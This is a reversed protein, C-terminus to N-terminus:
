PAGLESANRNEREADRARGAREYALALWRRHSAHNPELFVCQKFAQVADPVRELALLLIGRWLRAEADTPIAVRELHALAEGYRGTDALSRVEDLTATTRDEAAGQGTHPPLAPPKSLARPAHLGSSLAPPRPRRVTGKRPRSPSRRGPRVTSIKVTAKRPPAHPAEEPPPKPQRRYYRVGGQIVHEWVDPQHIGPDSPGILLLGDRALLLGLSRVVGQAVAPDWYIGVNRFFIADFPSHRYPLDDVLNVREFTVLSRLGPSVEWFEGQNRFYADYGQLGTRVSWDRYSGQRAKQLRRENIDWGVVRDQATRSPTVDALVAAASWAEEGSSCGASLVRVSRGERHRQEALKRLLVFHGFHRFLHTEPVTMVDIIADWAQTDRALLRELAAEVGRRGGVHSMESALLPMRYDPVEIGYWQALTRAAARVAPHLVDPM